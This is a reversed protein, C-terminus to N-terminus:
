KNRKLRTCAVRCSVTDTPRNTQRDCKAKKANKLMKFISFNMDSYRMLKLVYRPDRKHYKKDNKTMKEWSSVKDNKTMKSWKSNKQSNKLEKLQTKIVQRMKLWNNHWKRDDETMKQWKEDNMEYHCDPTNKNIKFM